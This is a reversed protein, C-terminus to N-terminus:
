ILENFSEIYIDSINRLEKEKLNEMSDYVGVVKFGANKATQAATFVDEFVYTNEIPTELFKHATNYILPETKRTKLEFCTFIIEFYKLIGCRKLAPILLARDTATALCIRVGDKKLRELYEAAGEKLRAKNEYFDSIYTKIESFVQENTRGTEYNQCIYDCADWLYMHRLEDHLTKSPEIGISLLYDNGVYRWMKMSDLITGDLDFIAGKINKIM